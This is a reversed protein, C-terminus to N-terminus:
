AIKKISLSGKTYQSMKFLFQSPASCNGTSVFVILFKWRCESRKLMIKWVMTELSSNAILNNTAICTAKSWAERTMLINFSKAELRRCRKKRKGYSVDTLYIHRINAHYRSRYYKRFRGRNTM